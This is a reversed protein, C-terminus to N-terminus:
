RFEHSRMSPRYEYPRMTDRQTDPSPADLDEVSSPASQSRASSGSASRRHGGDGGAARGGRYPPLLGLSRKGRSSKRSGNESVVELDVSGSANPSRQASTIGVPNRQEHLFEYFSGPRKERGLFSRREFLPAADGPLSHSRQRQHHASVHHRQSSSGRTGPSLPVKAATSSSRRVYEVPAEGSSDCVFIQEASVPDVEHVYIATLLTRPHEPGFVTCQLDLCKVLLAKALRRNKAELAIVGHQLLSQLYLPNLPGLYKRRTAAVVGMIRCADDLKEEVSRYIMAVHEMTLALKLDTAGTADKFRERIKMSKMYHGLATVFDGIVEHCCGQNHHVDALVLRDTGYSNQLLHQARELYGSARVVWEVNDVIRSTATRHRELLIIARNLLATAVGPHSSGLHETLYGDCTAVMREAEEFEQRACYINGLLLLGNGFQVHDKAEHLFREVAGRAAELDGKDYLLLAEQHLKSSSQSM